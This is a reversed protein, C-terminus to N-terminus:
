PDPQTPDPRTPDGKGARGSGARSTQGSWQVATAIYCYLLIYLERTGHLGRVKTDPHKARAKELATSILGGVGEEDIRAFPDFDLLGQAFFFFFSFWFLFM